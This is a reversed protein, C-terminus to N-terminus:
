HHKLRSHQFVELTVTNKVRTSHVDGTFVGIQLFQEEHLM